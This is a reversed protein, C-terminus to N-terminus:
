GVLGAGKRHTNCLWGVCLRNCNPHACRYILAKDM